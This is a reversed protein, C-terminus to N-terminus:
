YNIYYFVHVGANTAFQRILISLSLNDYLIEENHHNLDFFKSNRIIYTDKYIIIIVVSCSQVFEKKIYM